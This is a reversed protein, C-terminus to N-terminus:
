ILFDILLCVVNRLRINSGNRIAYQTLKTDVMTNYKQYKHITATPIQMNLFVLIDCRLKKQGKKRKLYTNHWYKSDISPSTFPLVKALGAFSSTFFACVRAFCSVSFPTVLCQSIIDRSVNFLPSLENALMPAKNLSLLYLLGSIKHTRVYFSNNVVVLFENFIPQLHCTAMWFLPRDFM